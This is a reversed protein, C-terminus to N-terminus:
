DYVSNFIMVMRIMNHGFIYLFDIDYVMRDNMSVMSVDVKGRLANINFFVTDSISVSFKESCVIAEWVVVPLRAHTM